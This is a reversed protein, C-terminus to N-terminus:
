AAGRALMETWKAVAAQFDRVNTEFTQRLTDFTQQWLELTKARLERPDKLEALKLMAELNKRGAAFQTELGDRQKKLIDELFETWAKQYKEVQEGWIPQSGPLGPWLSAWKKFMEQQLQITSETAKRLSDIIPDIM